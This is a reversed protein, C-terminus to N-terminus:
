ASKEYFALNEREDSLLLLVEPWGPYSKHGTRLKSVAEDMGWKTTGTQQLFAMKYLQIITMLSTEGLQGVTPLDLYECAELLIEKQNEHVLHEMTGGLIALDRLQFGEPQIHRAFIQQLHDPMLGNLIGSSILDTTNFHAHGNELGPLSWGYMGNLVRNLAYRATSHAVLQGSRKPLAAFMTQVRAELKDVRRELSHPGFVLELDALLSASEQKQLFSDAAAASAAMSLVIASLAMAM